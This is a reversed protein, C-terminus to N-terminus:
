VLVLRPRLKPVSFYSDSFTSRCQVTGLLIPSFSIEHQTSDEAYIEPVMRQLQCQNNSLALRLIIRKLLELFELVDVPNLGDGMPRFM